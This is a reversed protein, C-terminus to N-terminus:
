GPRGDPAAGVPVEGRGPGSTGTGELLQKRAQPDARRFTHFHGPHYLHSRTGEAALAPGVLFLTHKWLRHQKVTAELTGVTCGVVLEDPWTAQHAVVVPTAPSYGGALLEAQLQGSRAASLFVAMTTGHRAFARVSEGAPMPTKGGELRTLIVSQAVGPITLERQVIAAVATFSSVGPVIEVALGLAVCLDLQEQVAGWLGPDGSHIRAVTLGERAAREYLPVVGEMPLQSSDVIRAGERTHRLVDPHVLSAAWIVLDAEGIARAARLTLLDAAGPGAGVFWVKGAGPGTEPGASSGPGTEPGASSGPGTEPGASSGPGTEPGASSGPGATHSVAQRRAPGQPGTRARDVPLALREDVPVAAAASVREDPLGLGSGSSRTPWGDTDPAVGRRLEQHRRWGKYAVVTGPGPWRRRSRRGARGDGAATDLSERGECLVTGSRAALDQMATIGPVTSVEVAPWAGTVTAALYTFTSYVNPDGITAFAVTRAGAGFADLVVQAAADWAQERRATLGDRDDLAFAARVVRQPSVYALVTSEARGATAVGDMVPVIVTDAERLLRVAKVTVLEPDGPGVGIGILRLGGPDGTAEAGVPTMRLGRGPPPRLGSTGGLPHAPLLRARRRGRVRPRARGVVLRGPQRSGAGHDHSPVRPRARGRGCQALPSDAAAIAERYGLTLRATMRADVDLRGCMPVGDLTRALYLLGACEGVVPGDFAALEARLSGNASLAEVHIEPFGGGIVVGRTDAPLHGDTLPDFPVVTAGAAELLEGTEPYSFTFAPGEAVAITTRCSRGGVEVDPDWAPVGLPPASRALAVVADLDISSAVLDGLAAVLVASREARELVPVLGLHRSPAVVDEARNLVGLVPVGVEAMAERLLSEHRASGVRNLIVGGLRVQPDFARMGLVLAAASRSQARADVVLIVPADILRAVHATSAFAGRGVAGDHLGM